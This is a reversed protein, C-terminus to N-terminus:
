VPYLDDGNERNKGKGKSTFIQAVTRLKKQPVKIEMGLNVAYPIPNNEIELRFTPYLSSQTMPDSTKEMEDLVHKALEAKFAKPLRETPKALGYKQGVNKFFSDTRQKYKQRNGKVFSGVLRDAIICNFIIHMHPNSEDLHIDATLPVAPAFESNAWALCDSFYNKIDIDTKQAPISFLLEIALVANKRIIEGIKNEYEDIRDSMNSILDATSIPDLLSLNLHMRQSDIHSSAGLERQIERKNHKFAARLQKLSKIVGINFLFTHTQPTYLNPM